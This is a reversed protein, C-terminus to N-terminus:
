LSAGVTGQSGGGVGVYPSNQPFNRGVIGGL